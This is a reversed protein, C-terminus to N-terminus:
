SSVENYINVVTAVKGSGGALVLSKMNLLSMLRDIVVKNLAACKECGLIDGVGIWMAPSALLRYDETSGVLPEAGDIGKLVLSNISGVANCPHRFPTM